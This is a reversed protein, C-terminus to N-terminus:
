SREPTPHDQRGDPDVLHIWTERLGQRWLAFRPSTRRARTAVQLAELRDLTREPEADAELPPASGTDTTM